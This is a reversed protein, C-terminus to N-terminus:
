ARRRDESLIGQHQNFGKIWARGLLATGEVKERFSRGAIRRFQTGACDLVGHAAFFDLYMLRVRSASWHRAPALKQSGFKQLRQLIQMVRYDYTHEQLVKSRAAQAISSREEEDRLFHRVLDLLEDEQRYGAFHVGEVFGLDTLESPLSTILLAGSALVEFVRLNADQPFDDRGINVVVLSRRYIKAVEELSYTRKWDNMRFSNALKPICEERKRYLAGQTQGAWGVEFERPLEPQDFLDRRVAHSLLFASPHGDKQFRKEYGPHSVAVHDFLSSWRMRRQTFTYTDVQFCVTPIDSYVLGEPLLPFDSEFHFIWSPKEPYHRVIRELSSDFPPAWDVCLFPIGRARFASAYGPILKRHNDERCLCLVTM